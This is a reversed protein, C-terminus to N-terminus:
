SAWPGSRKEAAGNTAPPASPASRQTATLPTSGTMGKVSAIENKDEYGTQSKIKLRVIMPIGHLEETDSVRLRGAAHCIASLERQAIEVAQVNPNWLNLSQWFRRGKAPGDMVEWELNIYKGTGAKTDRVESKAIASVYDGAPLIGREESPAVGSADFTGGLNAM